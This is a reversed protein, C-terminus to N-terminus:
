KVAERYKKGIVLLWRHDFCIQGEQIYPAFGTREGGNLENEMKVIIDEQIQQPTDTLDMWSQLNVPVLTTEERLIEFAEQFLAEFEPRSLIRTHSPDRMREISDNRARLEEATAEMDWVVLKGGKKLVRQMERFPKEPDVFHHLSLRTVVLDFTEDEFPLSEAMGTVFSINQLGEKEALKKGQELMAETLDLCTIDKVHPAIARGCICTGAAVELAHETGEAQISKILYDTYEAKSMHYAAFKDAQVEFSKKVESHNNM